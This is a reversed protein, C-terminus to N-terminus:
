KKDFAIAEASAANAETEITSATAARATSEDSARQWDSHLSTKDNNYNL